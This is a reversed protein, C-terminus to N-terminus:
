IVHLDVEMINLFNLKLMTEQEKLFQTYFCTLFQKLLLCSQYKLIFQFIINLM